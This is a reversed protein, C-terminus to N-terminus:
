HCAKDIKKFYNKNYAKDIKLFSEWGSKFVMHHQPPIQLELLWLMHELM